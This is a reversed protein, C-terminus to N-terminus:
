SGDSHGAEAWNFTPRRSRRILIMGLLWAALALTVLVLVSAGTLPVGPIEAGFLVSLWGMVGALDICMFPSDACFGSGGDSDGVHGAGAAVTGTDDTATARDSTNSERLATFMANDSSAADGSSAWAGRANAGHPQPDAGATKTGATSSDVIGGSSSTASSVSSTLDSVAGGVADTSSGVAGAVPDTVNSVADTIPDTVDTTEAVAETVPATTESMVETVSDTTGDLADPIGDALAPAGVLVLGVALAVARRLTSRYGSSTGM